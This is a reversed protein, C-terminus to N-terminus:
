KSPSATKVPQGDPGVVFWVGGVNQGNSDGPKADKWWYYLPMKNYTVQIGGDKRATTGLMDKAVGDSAVPAGNTLLPPWRQACQDYCNSINPDDRTFMYLSRGSADTLMNGLTTNNIIKVAANNEIPGGYISVVFWVGGVNQGTTDGAKTDRAWYYLPWGNYTVQTSGDKRTTTGLLDKAAGEGAEPTGATLLPPWARACQDYCNSLGLEDKTFLYLSRGSGDVLMKGLQASTAVAVKAAATPPATTPATTAAPATATPPV